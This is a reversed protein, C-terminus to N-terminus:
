QIIKFGLFSALIGAIVSACIYFTLTGYKGEQLLLMNEVSFSSFTTFGGCLGVALFIKVNESINENTSFWGILLGLLFSGAINIILTIIFAPQSPLVRYMGLRLMAGIGGGAGALLFNQLM